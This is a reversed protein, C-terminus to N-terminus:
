FELNARVEIWRPTNTQGSTAFSTSQVSNYYNGSANVFNGATSGFVPHNWVNLFEGQLRFNLGEKIPVTKSVSLDEYFAHPGYLYLKTGLTGPNTNPSLYAANAGGGTPANLYKPDILTAYTKGPLRHVGVSKQLQEPTVGTLTVGGDAYDNFTGNGGFIKNAAGSQFTIITGVTWGGVAEALVGGHSLFMRGRGFPLDYTTTFHMSHKIDYPTPGYSNGLDRLTNIADAGGTYNRTSSLGLTKGYTYNADFQFGAWQQQRFDIQLANYNSYGVAAMYSTSTGAAYPNAQFFNVPYGAGGGTYGANTACPAFSAGVLNCFYATTGSVGSLVSAMSGASGSTLYNIFSTNSYDIPGVGPGGSDEGAFAADFIPTAGQGPLHNNAFSGQIGAAMNARYNAQAQKFQTLFGNEFINVENPDYALWQHLSHNGVYRIELARPGFKREIGFNWSETYPQRIHPDMGTVPVNNIFTFDAQSESTVYTSPTFGYAPLRSGLALSGPAFTGATGTNNANLYFNQYFFSGYSSANNWYYQQPMTYNRLNFGGRVVMDGNGFLGGGRPNWAFGFAPQPAVYWPAYAHARADITPNNTGNLVGPHFLNGVGSPGYISALSSNHYGNTLDHNDGTFDWRLGYNLTFTPTVRWSDQFYVGFQNQREDLNFAGIQQAYTKTSPSYAYQGSVGSIRGTLVAYLQQAEALSSSSANPLTGTSGNSFANIAPDGASLGLYYNPFGAPGNWYHDQEMNWSGGFKFSHTRKQLSITDSANWVPYFNSIPLTYVQGSMNPGGYSDLDWFVTPDTAYLPAAGVGYKNAAYLYGVKFQNTLNTSFSHDYGYSVTFGKTNYGSSQNSFGSGPFDPAYTGNQAQTSLDGALYMHDRGSMNWDLRGAPYYYVNPAPTSWSLSNINADSTAAAFGSSVAGNIAQLQTSVVSNLTTPLAPNFQGALALVNRTYSKGDTGTYTFNGSQAAQTLFFNSANIGGPIRRTSFSGFFFLKDKLIPGGLSGGFDNYIVKTRRQGTVKNAYTNAFLGSNRGDWYIRGHFRNSGARTVFNVQMTSRGYGQDLDLQDTQVTMEAINEVRPSASPQINGNYKGRSPEGVTGDINSGQNSFQQGNFVGTNGSSGASPDGAYGPVLKVLNTLDRGVLPLDEIWKMDITTGISNSTTDLLPSETSAVNITESQAGAKLAIQLSTTQAAQVVVKDLVTNAFGDKTVSLRYAGIPLNVFTFTGEGKSVASRQANTSIELLNLKAGPVAAGTADQVTVTVTGQSGAQAHGDTSALTGLVTALAASSLRRRSLSSLM